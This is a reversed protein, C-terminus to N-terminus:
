EELTEYDDGGFYWGGKKWFGCSEHSAWDCRKGSNKPNLFLYRSSLNLQISFVTLQINVNISFVM